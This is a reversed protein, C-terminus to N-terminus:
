KEDGLVAMMRKGLDSSGYLRQCIETPSENAVSSSGISSPKRPHADCGMELLIQLAEINGNLVAWHVPTRAWNDRWNFSETRRPDTAVSRQWKDMLFRLLQCHGSRAACHLVTQHSGDKMSLPAGANLLLKMCELREEDEIGTAHKIHSHPPVGAAILHIPFLGLPDPSNFRAGRDLLARVLASDGRQCAAHLPSSRFTAMRNKRGTVKGLRGSHAGFNPDAGIELLAIAVNTWGLATAQFLAGYLASLSSFSSIQCDTEPQLTRNEDPTVRDNVGRFGREDLWDVYSGLTQASLLERVTFPSQLTGYIGGLFRSDHVGHHHAYLARVVRAGALSDGGVLAFNASSTILAEQAPIFNLQRTLITMLLAGTKSYQKLPISSGGVNNEVLSVFPISENISPVHARSRKGTPSQPIRPLIMLIGPIVKSKCRCRERILVELPGNSCLAGTAPVPASVGLQKLCVDSLVLYGTLDNAVMLKRTAANEGKANRSSAVICDAVVPYQTDEDRIGAEIEGIEIRMGGIKLM